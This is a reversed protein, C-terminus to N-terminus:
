ENGGGRVGGVNMLFLSLLKEVRKGQLDDIFQLSGICDTMGM